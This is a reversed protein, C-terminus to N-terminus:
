LTGPSLLRLCPAFLVSCVAAFTKEGVNCCGVGCVGGCSGGDFGDTKVCFRNELFVVFVV